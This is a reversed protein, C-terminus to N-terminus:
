AAVRPGVGPRGRWEIRQIVSDDQDYEVVIAQVATKPRIM